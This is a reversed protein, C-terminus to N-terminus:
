TDKLITKLQVPKTHKNQARESRITKILGVRPAFWKKEEITVELYDLYDGGYLLDNGIGEIVLCDKFEKQGIKVTESTSMIRYKTTITGKIALPTEWPGTARLLVLNTEKLWSEGTKLNLPLFLQEKFKSGSVKLNNDFDSIVYIGDEKYKYLERKGSLTVLAADAIEPKSAMNDVYIVERFPTKKNDITLEAEYVWVKGDEIPFYAQLSTELTCASCITLCLVGWFFAPKTPIGSTKFDWILKITTDSM